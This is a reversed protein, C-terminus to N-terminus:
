VHYSADMMVDMSVNLVALIIVHRVALEQADVAGILVLHEVLKQVHVSADMVVRQRAHGKVHPLVDVAVIRADQIVIDQVGVVCTLAHTVANMVAFMM